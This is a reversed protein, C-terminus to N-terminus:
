EESMMKADGKPSLVIIPASPYYSFNKMSKHVAYDLRIIIRFVHSPPLCNRFVTILIVEPRVGM